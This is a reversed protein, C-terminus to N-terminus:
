EIIQLYHTQSQELVVCDLAFYYRAGISRSNAGTVEAHLLFRGNEPKFVGLKLPESPQPKESYGDLVVACPQGNVSFRLTGYDPAQSAYLVVQKPQADPAPVELEISDGAKGAQVILQRGGSWRESGWPGMDQSWVPFDGSKRALKMTECEIAGPKRPRAPELHSKAEALTAIPLLAEQPQPKISSTAGSFAYWYTTAAYTLTMPKWAMLEMDFQLSRRFPIGDLHRTRSLVNHGQTMPEDIRVQNAFPTQMIGKPAFCYNYYDETGTGLHSPFPEGDIWIKEDGEGYWTPIPNFLALSDGVYVGQGAIRIYNWDSVPPTKLGSEYHWAARFHMSRDDWKWDGVCARLSIDVRENGLKMITIRATERYPMVWRCTMTGDPLVTRYWSRLENIGVGSGFFDSAPCWITEEGDCTMKVITSRLAAECDAPNAAKVQLALQRVAAPGSPLNLVAEAGNALQRDLALTRGGTFSPPALLLKGVRDLEPRVEEMTSRSFTEVKTEQSYTRYNIQYCIVGGRAPDADEWTVKCHRKYPIPLYLTNGGQGPIQSGPHVLLWPTGIEVVDNLLMGPTKTTVVPEAAGDLYVRVKGKKAEDTVLWFRVICGPGDVDMMVHETRGANKETRIYQNRDNNGFWGPKDPAIKARDYSSAQSCTYEPQPWRAIADGDIMERVLSGPTVADNKRAEEAVAALSM